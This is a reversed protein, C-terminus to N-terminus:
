VPTLPSVEERGPKDRRAPDLFVVHDAVVEASTRWTGDGNEQNHVQLRGTLGVLRGKTLHEGIVTALQRWAVVSIFDADREGDRNAFPRPVALVFWARAVGDGTMRLDPDRTLRGVLTIHNIGRGGGGRPQEERPQETSPTEEPREDEQTRVQRPM